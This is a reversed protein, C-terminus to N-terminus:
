ASLVDSIGRYSYMAYYFYFSAETRIGVSNRLRKSAVFHANKKFVPLLFLKLLKLICMFTLPLVKLLLVSTTSFM